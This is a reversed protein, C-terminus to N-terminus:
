FAYLADRPLHPSTLGILWKLKSPLTEHRSSDRSSPFTLGSRLTRRYKTGSTVKNRLTSLNGWFHTRCFHTGGKSRWILRVTGNLEQILMPCLNHFPSPRSVRCEAETSIPKNWCCMIGLSIMWQGWCNTICTNWSLRNYNNWEPPISIFSIRLVSNRASNEWTCPALHAFPQHSAQRPFIRNEWSITSKFTESVTLNWMFELEVRLKWEHKRPKKLVPIM